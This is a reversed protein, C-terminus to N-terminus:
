DVEIHELLTKLYNSGLIHIKKRTDENVFSKCMGWVGSFLFPANVIFLVGLQEPYYDQSIESANQVMAYVKKNMM